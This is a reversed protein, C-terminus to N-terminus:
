GGGNGRGRQRSFMSHSTTRQEVPPRPRPPLPRSRWFADDHWSANARWGAGSSGWWALVEEFHRRLTAANLGATGTVETAVHHLKWRALLRSVTDSTRTSVLAGLPLAMDRGLGVLGRGYGLPVSDASIFKAELVAIAQRVGPADGSARCAESVARPMLLLDAEHLVGSEGRVKVGVHAELDFAGRRSLVAHTYERSPNTFSGPAGRLLLEDREGGDPGVITVDWRQRVAVELLTLLIFAEYLDNEKAKKDYHSGLGTASTASGLADLVLRRMEDADPLKPASM